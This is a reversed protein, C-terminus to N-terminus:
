KRPVSTTSGPAPAVSPPAFPVGPPAILDSPQPMPLENPPGVVPGAPLVPVGGPAPYSMLQGPVPPMCEGEFPKGSYGALFGDHKDSDRCLGFLGRREGCSSRCGVASTLLIMGVAGMTIRRM